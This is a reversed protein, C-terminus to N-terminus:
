EHEFLVRTEEICLTKKVENATYYDFIGKAKLKYILRKQISIAILELQSVEYAEMKLLKELPMADWDIWDLKNTERLPLDLDKKIRYDADQSLFNFYDLLHKITKTENEKSLLKIAEIAILKMPHEKKIQQQKASLMPLFINAFILSLIIVGSSIFLIMDIGLVMNDGLVLPISLCLALTLAGRVGAFSMILANRKRGVDKKLLFYAYLFRLSIFMFTIVLIYFIGHLLDTYGAGIMSLVIKKIEMGLITFILGNLVFLILGWSGEGHFWIKAQTPTVLRPSLKTLTMGCVVVALIGSMGFHETLVFVAFPTLLECLSYIEPTEIKSMKFLKIISYMILACIIGIAIGGAAVYLFSGPINRMSFTEGLAAIIAFNFAVIGSADNFLSEGEIITELHGPLKMRSAIAKVSVADTPSLIAAIAFSLSLSVGPLLWYIVFGCILVNAIVLGMVLLTIPKKLQWLERLKFKRGDHFLIPAIFLLLFVHPNMFFGAEVGLFSIIVGLGIQIIPLSVKKIFQSLIHAILVILLMVLINETTQM